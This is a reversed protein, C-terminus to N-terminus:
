LLGVFQFCQRILPLWNLNELVPRYWKGWYPDWVPFSICQGSGDIFIDGQKEMRTLSMETFSTNDAYHSPSTLAFVSFFGVVLLFKEAVFGWFNLQLM